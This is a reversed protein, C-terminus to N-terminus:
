EGKRELYVGPQEGAMNVLIKEDKATPINKGVYDARIPLERHGRDVLVALQIKKPRGLDVLADMAARVTRGTFLVDDVLICTKETLDINPLPAQARKDDDRHMSIDLPVVLVEVDTYKQINEKISEAIPLGKKLIGILVIERLDENKEIIEHTMRRLTKWVTEQDFLCHM